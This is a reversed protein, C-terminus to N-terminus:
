KRPVTRQLVWMSTSWSAAYPAHEHYLGYGVSLFIMARFESEKPMMILVCYSANRIHALSILKDKNV